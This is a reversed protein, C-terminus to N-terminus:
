QGAVYRKVGNIIYYGPRLTKRAEGWPQDHILLIGSLAYVDVGSDPGIEVADIASSRALMTLTGDTLLQSTDWEYGNGDVVFTGSISPSSFLRVVEGVALEKGDPIMPRLVADKLTVKGATMSGTFVAKNEINLSGTTGADLACLTGEEVYIDAQSDASTLTQTGRGYKRLRGALIRGAFLADSDTYGVNYRGNALVATPQDSELRGIYTEVAPKATGSGLAYHGVETDAAISLTLRRMDSVDVMRWPSGKAIVRGDFRSFDTLIDSRVGGSVITVEGDGTMRGKIHSRYSGELRNDKGEIDMTCDLVPLTNFSKNAILSFAGGRFKMVGGTKCPFSQYHGQSVMGQRIVFTDVPAASPYAFNLQGAGTKVLTAKEGEVLGRLTLSGAADAVDIVAEGNLIMSRDTTANKGKVRLTANSLLLNEKDAAAAGLDGATLADSLNMVTLTGGTVEVKGTFDSGPLNVQLEGKGKKYLCTTGGIGGKGNLRYPAGDFDFVVSSAEIKDDLVVYRTKAEDGFVVEDENVFCTPTGNLTFNQSKFDWATSEEGNWRVGKAHDRGKLVKLWLHQGDATVEYAVGSLGRVSIDKLDAKLTGTCTVLDYRGEALKGDPTVITFTTSQSITLDGKVLWHDQRDDETGLIDLEVYVPRDITLDHDVTLTGLSLASHGPALRCGEYNLAGEFRLPGKVVPSGALTGRAMLVVEGAIKGDVALTGESIETRGTYDLDAAIEVKGQMSKCLHMDGALTGPGTIVYDHGKPNMLWVASPRVEGRLAIPRSNDGSLDFLVSKDRCTSLSTTMDYSTLPTDQSWESGSRWRGDAVIVPHVPPTPMDYGLYYDTNPSQYYGRATCDLRYHPDQQLCTISHSTPIETTYGVFGTSVPTDGDTQKLLFVEERWDGICDGYYAARAGNTGHVKWGSEKSFQVYRNNSKVQDYESILVNCNWGSSGSNGLVERGLDGDWWVGEYPFPGESAEYTKVVNGKCDYMNALTSYIEYGKHTPDVDMCEGRGVDVVSPMYWEKIHEGTAADYLCMGLLSSQQIAFTELGPREPDIDSIRFRDGHGIGASMVMGKVPNVAYGGELLEDIGDGDVDGGRLGHFEAPWPTKDNRSWTYRHAFRAPTGGTWDYGFAFVYNHHRQDQATRDLCEMMLSPHIGDTYAVVFHGTMEYYGKNSMYDSRNDRTYHDEGDTVEEYKLEACDTEEGTMGNVVSIYFPPNRRTNSPDAYDVIGDGDTDAHDSGMAYLGFDERSKDWFRTGDSSKIIVEAKGDCNIDYVTVMDNQGADLDVNPGLAITWLCHGEADYAQLKHRAGHTTYSDVPHDNDTNCLRDVVYELEGDGDLDAPWIYKAFYRNPDLVTTEFDIDVFCNNWAHSKFLFPASKESENGHRDIVTVAIESGYPLKALTTSFNSAKLPTTNLQRYDGTQRAYLNYTASDPDQQLKRWSVLVGKAGKVAVVGRSLSQQIRQAHSPMAALGIAFLAILRDRQHKRM